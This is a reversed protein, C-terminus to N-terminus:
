PVACGAAPPLAPRHSALGPEGGLWDRLQGSRPRRPFHILHSACRCDSAGFGILPCHGSPTAALQRAWCHERNDGPLYWIQRLEAVHRLYDVHWHPRAAPQLHHGLRARLGGPGRASGCYLYWGRALRQRGFRGIELWTGRRLYLGLLYSGPLAPLQTEGTTM